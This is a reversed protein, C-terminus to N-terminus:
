NQPHVINTDLVAPDFDAEKIEVLISYDSDEAYDKGIVFHDGVSTAQLRSMFIDALRKIDEKRGRISHADIGPQQSTMIELYLYPGYHEHESLETYGASSAYEILIAHFKLLGQRSGALYWLRDEDKSDYFFGLERWQERIAGGDNTPTGM